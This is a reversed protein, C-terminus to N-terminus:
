QVPKFSMAAFDTQMITLKQSSFRVGSGFSIPGMVGTELNKTKELEAITCAWTLDKACRKIAEILARTSAYATLTYRNIAKFEAESLSTKARNIFAKVADSQDANVYDVAYSGDSIPGMLKLTPAVRGPWFIAIVPKTNLKELERVMAGNEVIIGGAIFVEAGASRLALMESSFDQQGKKYEAQYVVNLNNKKVARAFGTKLAEGYDDSQTVIAWKKAPYKGALYNALAEIGADYSQGIVFLNKHPPQYYQTIPATTAIAPIGAKEIVPIAAIGHSASISALAFVKDVEILKRIGQVARAAVYGDDEAILRLQRGAIGGAANTEGIALKIGVNIANGLLAPPGSLAEVQGLLIEKDTVGQQAHAATALLAMAAILSTKWTMNFTM